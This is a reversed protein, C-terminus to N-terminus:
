KNGFNLLTQRLFLELAEHPHKLVVFRLCVGDNVVERRAKELTKQSVFLMCHATQFHGLILNFLLYHEFQTLLHLLAVFLAESFKELKVKLSALLFGSCYIGKFM